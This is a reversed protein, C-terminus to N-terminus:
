MQMTMLQQYGEVLRSRVQLVLELSLKAQELAFSVQHVPISDDLVFTKVMRDATAVKNEAQGIGDNLMRSFSGLGPVSVQTALPTASPSALGLLTGVPMIAPVSM